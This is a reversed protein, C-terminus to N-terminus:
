EGGIWIDNDLCIIPEDEDTYISQRSGLAYIQANRIHEVMGNIVSMDVFYKSLESKNDKILKSVENYLGQSQLSKITNVITAINNDIDKFNHKTIVENPFNSYEHTYDTM